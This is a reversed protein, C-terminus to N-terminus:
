QPKDPLFTKLETLSRDLQPLSTLVDDAPSQMLRATPSQWSSISVTERIAANGADLKAHRRAVVKRDWCDSKVRNPPHAVVLQTPGPTATPPPTAGATSGAMSDVISGPTPGTAVNRGPQQSGQWNRPWLAVSSLIIVFLVTAVAFSIKFVRPSGPSSAQARNWVRIFEPAVREDALKLERFLARIKKENGVLEM